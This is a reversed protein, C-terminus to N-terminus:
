YIANQTVGLFLHDAGGAKLQNMGFITWGDFQRQIFEPLIGACPIGDLVAGAVGVAGPDRQFNDSVIQQVVGDNAAHDDVAAVDTLALMVFRSALLENGIQLFGDGLHVGEGPKQGDASGALFNVVLVPLPLLNLGVDTLAGLDFKGVAHTGLAGAEPVGVVALLGGESAASFASKQGSLARCSKGRM